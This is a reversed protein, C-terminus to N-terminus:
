AVIFKAPHDRYEPPIGGGWCRMESDLTVACVSSAGVSVQDWQYHAASDGSYHVMQEAFGWCVLRDAERGGEQGESQDEAAATIACVGSGGVSVQRFPGVAMLPKKGRGGWCQLHAGLLTIGCSQGDGVSIQRFQIKSVGEDARDIGPATVTGSAAPDFDEEEDGARDRRPSQLLLGPDVGPGRSAALYQSYTYTPPITEKMDGVASWCHPYAASTPFSSSTM